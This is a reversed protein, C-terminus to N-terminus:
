GRANEALWEETRTHNTMTLAAIQRPNPIHGNILLQGRPELDNMVLLLMLWLYKAEDSCMALAPDANWAERSIFLGRRSM